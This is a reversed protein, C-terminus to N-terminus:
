ILRPKKVACSRSAALKRKGHDPEGFMSDLGQAAVLQTISFPSGSINYLESDLQVCIRFQDSVRFRVQKRFNGNRDFCTSDAISGVAQDDLALGATALRKMLVPFARESPRLACLIHGSGVQKGGARDPVFDLQFYFLSAITSRAIRDIEKSVSQDGLAKARLEPIRRADDLRPEAGEFEIDLRHYRPNGHVLRKIKEERMSEWFLRFLRSLVGRGRFARRLVGAPQWEDADAAPAPKGTGLSLVLHPKANPFTASVESVAASMPNNELSGADQFIGM